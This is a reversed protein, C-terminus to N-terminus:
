REEVPRGMERERELEREAFELMGELPNPARRLGDPVRVLDPSFDDLLELRIAVDEMTAQRADGAFTALADGPAAIPRLTRIPFAGGAHARAAATLNGPSPGAAKDGGSGRLVDNEFRELAALAPATLRVRPDLWVELAPEGGPRKDPGGLSVLLRRVGDRALLARATEPLEPPTGSVAAKDGPSRESFLIEVEGAEEDGGARKGRAAAIGAFSEEEIELFRQRLEALRSFSLTWYTGHDPRIETVERRALDVVLRSGDSRESVIWSGGYTDTVPDGYYTTGDGDTQIALHEVVFPQPFLTGTATRGGPTQAAVLAPGAAALVVLRLALEIMSEPRRM